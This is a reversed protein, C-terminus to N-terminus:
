GRFLEAFEQHPQFLAAAPAVLPDAPLYAYASGSDLAVAGATGRRRFEAREFADCSYASRAAIIYGAQEPQPLTGGCGVCDVGVTAVTAVTAGWDYAIDCM